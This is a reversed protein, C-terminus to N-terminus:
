QTGHLTSTPPQPRRINQINKLTHPYSCMLTQFTDAQTYIHSNEVVCSTCAERSPRSCALLETVMGFVHDVHTGFQM